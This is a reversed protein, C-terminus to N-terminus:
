CRVYWLVVTKALVPLWVLTHLLVAEGVALDVGDLSALLSALATARSATLGICATIVILGGLVVYSELTRHHAM